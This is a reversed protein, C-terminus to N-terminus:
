GQSPMIDRQCTLRPESRQYAARMRNTRRSSQGPRRLPKQERSTTAM